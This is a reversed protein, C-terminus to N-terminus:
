QKILERIECTHARSGTLEAWVAQWESCVSLPAPMARGRLVRYNLGSAVAAVDLLLKISHGVAGALAQGYQRDRCFRRVVAMGYSVRGRCINRLALRDERYGLLVDEIAGFRSRRYTRLLLEQDEARIVGSDYPNKRFWETRGMWSSHAMPFAGWPRRSIWQHSDRVLRVGIPEGDGRFVIVSTGILDVEPRGELYAVQRRLRDPFSVDDGDMRALYKGRSLRVAQNLRSPLGSHFGDAIVRLRPDRCAAAVEYTLDTSGDDLVLLEWHPFTQQVISRIAIDLTRECNRVPMAISVLPAVMHTM